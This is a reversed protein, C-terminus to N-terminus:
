PFVKGARWSAELRNVVDVKSDVIETCNFAKTGADKLSSGVLWCRSNFAFHRDHLGAVQRVEISRGENQFDELASEFGSEIARGGVATLLRISTCISRLCDLTVVSVYPDVVLVDTTAKELFERIEAKAAFPKKAAVAIENGSELDKFEERVKRVTDRLTEHKYRTEFSTNAIAATNRSEIEEILIELLASNNGVAADVILGRSFALFEGKASLGGAAPPISIAYIECLHYLEDANYYEWLVSSFMPISKVNM